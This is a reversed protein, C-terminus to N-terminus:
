LSGQLRDTFGHEVETRLDTGVFSGSEKGISSTVWQEAEWKGKPLVDATYTYGFLNEDARAQALGLAGALVGVFVNSRAIIGCKVIM